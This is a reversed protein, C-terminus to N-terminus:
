RRTERSASSAARRLPHLIPDPARTHELCGNVKACLAGASFPHERNGRLNIARGGDDVTV